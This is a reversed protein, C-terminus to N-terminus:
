ITPIALAAASRAGTERIAKALRAAAEAVVAHDVHSVSLRLAPLDRGGPDFDAGPAVRVGRSLARRAVERGTVGPPLELWFLPNGPEGGRHSLEPLNRELAEGLAKRRKEVELARRRRVEEDANQRLFEAIAAQLPLPTQLDSTQKALTIAWLISRDAAIWGVRFGPVLDKSFSGLTVVRRRNLASLPPHGSVPTEYGDEVVIAGAALCAALLHRRAEADLTDGTPNQREPMTYALRVPGHRLASLDRGQRTVPIEVTRAGYFQLLPLVGPYTPSEVAVAQGPDVFTKFLLDLAQQTGSTVLIEEASWPAGAQAMRRAIQVRLEKFGHPSSYQWLERNRRWTESLIALFAEQPFFKEDPTLRSLDAFIPEERALASESTSLRSIGASFRIEAEHDGVPEAGGPPRVVTIGSGVRTRLRGSAELRRIAKLLVGRNVGLGAAMERTPPLREGDRLAGTDILTRLREEVQEALSGPRRNDASGILELVSQSM